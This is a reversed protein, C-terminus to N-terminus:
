RCRGTASSTAVQPDEGSLVLRVEPSLADRHWVSVMQLGADMAFTNNPLSVALQEVCGSVNVSDLTRWHPVERSLNRNIEEGGRGLVRAAVPRGCEMARVVRLREAELCTMAETVRLRAPGSRRVSDAFMSFDQEPLARQDM